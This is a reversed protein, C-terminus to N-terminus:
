HFVFCDISELGQPYPGGVDEYRFFSCIQLFPGHHGAVLICRFGLIPFIGMGIYAVIWGRQVEDIRFGVKFFLIGLCSDISDVGGHRLVQVILQEFGVFFTEKEDM